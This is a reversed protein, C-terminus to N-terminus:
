PSNLCFQNLISFTIYASETMAPPVQQLFTSMFITIDVKCTYTHSYLTTYYLIFNTNIILFSSKIFKLAM